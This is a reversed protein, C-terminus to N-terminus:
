LARLIRVRTACEVWGTDRVSRYRRLQIEEKPRSTVRMRENAREKLVSDVVLSSSPLGASMGVAVVVVTAIVGTDATVPRATGTSGCCVFKTKMGGAIGLWGSKLVLVTVVRMRLGAARGAGMVTTPDEGRGVLVILARPLLPLLLLTAVRVAVVTGSTWGIEDITIEVLSESPM